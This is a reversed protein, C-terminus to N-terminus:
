NSGVKDWLAVGISKSSYILLTFSAHSSIVMCISDSHGIFIIDGYLVAIIKIGLTSGDIIANCIGNDLLPSVSQCQLAVERGGGMGGTAQEGGAAAEDNRGLDLSRSGLM